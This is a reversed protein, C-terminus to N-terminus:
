LNVELVHSVCDANSNNVATAQLKFEDRFTDVESKYTLRM